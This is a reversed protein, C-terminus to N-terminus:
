RASASRWGSASRRLRSWSSTTGSACRAPWRAEHRGVHYSFGYKFNLYFILALTLTGMLATSAAAARKDTQWLTTAGFLGLVAFIATFIGHGTGWDRAFQWNFYQLYNGVALRLRGPAAVGPAQRVPGPQAGGDARQQLLRDAGGRQDPPLPGGPDPPLHLQARDRDAVALTGLYFIPRRFEGADSGPPTGSLLLVRLGPM